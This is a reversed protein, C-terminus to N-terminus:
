DYEDMYTAITEASALEIAAERNEEFAVEMGISSFLRAANQAISFRLYDAFRGIRVMGSGDYESDWAEIYNYHARNCDISRIERLSVVYGISDESPLTPIFCYSDSLGRRIHDCVLKNIKKLEKDNARDISCIISLEDSDKGQEVMINQFEIFKQKMKKSNRESASLKSVVEDVGDHMLWEFFEDLSINDGEFM